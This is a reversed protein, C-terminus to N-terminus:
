ASFDKFIKFAQTKATDYGEKNSKKIFGVLLAHSDNKLKKFLVRIAGGDYADFRVERLGDELTKFLPEGGQFKRNCALSLKEIVRYRNEKTLDNNFWQKFNHSLINPQFIQDIDQVNMLRYHEIGHELTSINKLSLTDRVPKGSDEDFRGITIESNSWCKKTNISLLFGSVVWALGYVDPFKDLPEGEVFFKYEVVRELQDESLYDLAPSKDEIEYLFSQLDVDDCEEIFQEYTYDNSIQLDLLDGVNSELYFFFRDREEYLELVGQIADNFLAKGQEITPAPFSNINICIAHDM